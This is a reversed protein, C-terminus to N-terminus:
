QIVGVACCIIRTATASNNSPCRAFGVNRHKSRSGALDRFCDRLCWDGQQQATCHAGICGTERLLDQGVAKLKEYQFKRVTSGVDSIPLLNGVKSGQLPRWVCSPGSTERRSAVTYGGCSSLITKSVGEGEVSLVPSAAEQGLCCSM